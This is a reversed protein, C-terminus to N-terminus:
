GIKGGRMVVRGGVIADTVVGRLKEGLFPTNKSKSELREKEVIWQRDLDVVILDADAGIGLHGKNVQLIRAPHTTMKEVLQAVTLVRAEVLERIALGFATELGIIGFPAYDFEVEKEAETHPAHDTSIADLAGDQLAQKIADRDRATRLPPNMKANTNYEAVAEETLTFYHPCTEATVRAGRQKAARILEVSQASSVHAIHLRGGTLEALALDRALQTTEAAQPIGRLGLRTATPGENMAGDASLELDECHPMIVLDFMKAYELARRMVEANMVPAGDDSLGVVGAHCLVGIETLEHGARGKTIAGVPFVNVLGVKAAETVLYKVVGENDCAPNTNPMACLSTFGGRLAARSATEITEQDERGPQRLHTHLDLFGPLVYRGSADVVAAGNGKLNPAVQVIKGDDIVLDLEADVGNAPDVLHGHKILVKKM